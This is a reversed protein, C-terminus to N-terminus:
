HYHEGCFAVVASVSYECVKSVLCEGCKEYDCKSLISAAELLKEIADRKDIM